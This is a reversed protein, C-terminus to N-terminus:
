LDLDDSLAKRDAREQALAALKAKVAPALKAENKAYITDLREAQAADTGGTFAKWDASAGGLRAKLAVRAIQRQVRQEEGVGSGAVRSSWEGALIANVAKSMAAGAEDATQAGSAADAIKQQLGHLALARVIDPSLAALDVSASASWSKDRPGKTVTHEGVLEISYKTM